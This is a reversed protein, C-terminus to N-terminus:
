PQPFARKALGAATMKPGTLSYGLWFKFFIPYTLLPGALIGKWRLQGLWFISFIPGNMIPWGFIAWDYKSGALFQFFNATNQPKGSSLM